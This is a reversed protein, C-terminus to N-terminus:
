KRPPRKLPTYKGMRRINPTPPIFITSENDFPKINQKKVLGDVIAILQKGAEKEADDSDKLKLAEHRIAETIDKTDM